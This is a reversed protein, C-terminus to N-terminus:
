IVYLKFGFLLEMMNNKNFCCGVKKNAQQISAYATWVDNPYEVDGLSSTTQLLHLMQHKMVM